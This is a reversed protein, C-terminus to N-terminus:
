HRYPEKKIYAAKEEDRKGGLISYLIAGLVYLLLFLVISILFALLVRGWFNHLEGIGPLVLTRALIGPLPEEMQLLLLDAVGVSITPIIILFAFGIGRWIPHIRWPFPGRYTNHRRPTM